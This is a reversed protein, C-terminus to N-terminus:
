VEFQRIRNHNLDLEKIQKFNELFEIKTLENNYLKLIKVEKLVCFQLGNLEKLINNSLDLIELGQCGNLGKKQNIDTPYLLTDIKNQSLILIKLLPLHGLM